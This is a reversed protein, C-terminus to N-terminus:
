RREAPRAASPSPSGPRTAGAPAAGPDRLVALALAERAAPAGSEAASALASLGRPGCRVLATAANGAIRHAPDELLEVLRPVARPSGLDGLAKVAVTRLATRRAGDTAALLADLGAPSGIRGLARATRIRVEIEEDTQLRRLLAPVAAVAGDLGAIDAAVARRLPDPGDLATVLAPHAGSGIRLLAAAVIRPPVDGPDGVADLLATAARDSGIRGLARAAVQRVDPDRDGLLRVLDPVVTRRRTSGLLEAARARRVASRSSLARVARSVAGRRDLVSVLLAHNDGRVKLLLATVEPEVARWTREDLAALRQEAEAAEPGDGAALELVLPRVDASLARRRRDGARRLTRRGATLGALVAVLVGIGFIATTLLGAATV